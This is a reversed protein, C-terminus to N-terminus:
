HRRNASNNVGLSLSLSLSSMSWVSNSCKWSFYRSITHKFTDACTHSHTDTHTNAYTHLAKTASQATKPFIRLLEAFPKERAGYLTRCDLTADLRASLRTLQKLRAWPTCLLCNIGNVYRQMRNGEINETCNAAWLDCLRQSIQARVRQSFGKFAACFESQSHSNSNNFFSLPWRLWANFIRSAAWCLHSEKESGRHTHTYTLTFLHSYNPM